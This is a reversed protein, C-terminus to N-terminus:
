GKEARQRFRTANISIAAAKLRAESLFVVM